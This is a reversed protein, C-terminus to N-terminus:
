GALVVPQVFVRSTSDQLMLLIEPAVMLVHPVVWLVAQAQVCQIYVVQLQLLKFPLMGAVAVALGKAAAVVIVMAAVAAVQAGFKSLSKVLTQPSLGHV